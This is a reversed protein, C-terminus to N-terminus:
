VLCYNELNVVIGSFWRILVVEDAKSTSSLFAVFWSTSTSRDGGSIYLLFSGM